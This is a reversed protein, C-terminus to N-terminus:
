GAHFDFKANADYGRPSHTPPPALPRTEVLGRQLLYPLIQTYMMPILDFDKRPRQQDMRLYWNHQQNQPPLAKPQQDQTKFYM